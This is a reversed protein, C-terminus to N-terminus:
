TLLIEIDKILNEILNRSYVDEVEEKIEELEDQFNMLSCKDSVKDINSIATEIQTKIKRKEVEELLILLEEKIYERNNQMM